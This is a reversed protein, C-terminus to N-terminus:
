VIKKLEQELRAALYTISGAGTCLVLDGENINNKIIQALNKEDSLKIVNQHGTKKIGEFISNQSVGDIPSQGASYIDCVIVIDADTFANCFENFLDRLRTYKHPQFVSIIKKKGVLSRAAKLTAVIETPHHGYDDIISVGQYEGVKTFRRKVGNFVQLGELIKQDSIELFNAIAIAALANSANHKGYIPMKINKITKGNKFKVDFVLGKADAVLNQAFLDANENTISYSILNNKKAKLKNYIIEVEKSDICLACIGYSPIQEVYKEFYEKQKEFSGAYGKFDLHEPEINTVAGIITPLSIFSGDSEDSEAVLYKGAGIKSNSNFYNIVGGNIITPDLNAKELVLSVMATTTTKGHTGSITVGQYNSMVIKLLEARTIIKIKRKQAELIEPNESKIISTQVILSIDDSINEAKHGVFYQIDLKRLKETLYNESLDSGQVKIKFERLIMALASMGIGGLGIFHVKSQQQLEQFNM